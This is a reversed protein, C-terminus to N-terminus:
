KEAAAPVVAAANRKATAKNRMDIFCLIAGIANEKSNATYLSAEIVSSKSDEKFTVVLDSLPCPSDVAQRFAEPGCVFAMSAGKIDKLHDSVSFEGPMLATKMTVIKGDASVEATNAFLTKLQSRLDAASKKDRCEIAIACGPMSTDSYAAPAVSPIGVAVTGSINKLMGLVINYVMNDGKLSEMHKEMDDTLAFAFVAACKGPIKKVVDLNIKGLPVAVTANEFSSTLLRCEVEFEGTDSDGEFGIYQLNQFVLQSLLAAEGGMYASTAALGTVDHDMDSLEDAYAIGAMSQKEEQDIFGPILDIDMLNDVIWFRNDKIVVKNCAELKLKDDKKFVSGQWKEVAARFKDPIAVYGSIYNHGRYTFLVAVSQEMAGNKLLANILDRDESQQVLSTFAASYEVGSNSVKNGAGENIKELNFLVTLQADAPVSKLLEGAKKDDNSCGTAALLLLCITLVSVLKQRM